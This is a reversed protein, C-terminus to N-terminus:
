PKAGALSQYIMTTVAEPGVRDSAWDRDFERSPNGAVIAALSKGETIGEAVRQRITWLMDRYAQLEGKTAVPGHGPIVRTHDNIQALVEDIVPFYGDITGHDALDIYPYLGNIYVDGLHVVNANKFYVVTDGATHAPCKHTAIIEEGDFHLVLRDRFTLHPTDAEPIAPSFTNWHPSFHGVLMAARCDEQAIICAGARLFAPNSGTHDTHYHTNIVYRVPGAGLETLKAQLKEALPAFEDDVLLTGDPGTLAVINGGSGHLFFVRPALPIVEFAVQAWDTSFGTATKWPSPVAAGALAGFAPWLAVISFASHM